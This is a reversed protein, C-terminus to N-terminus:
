RTSISVGLGYGRALLAARLKVRQPLDWLQAAVFADAGAILHNFILVATWDELQLSRTKVLADSYRSPEWAAVQPNGNGDLSPRGTEPDVVYRLPLSDRSYARALRVDDATRHMLAISFAEVIFFGAGVLPRSLRAQGWGPIALSLLFAKGPSVPPRISDGGAVGSRGADVRQACADRGSAVLLALLAAAVSARAFRQCQLLRCTRRPPLAHSDFGGLGVEDPRM